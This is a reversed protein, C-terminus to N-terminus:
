YARPHMPGILFTRGIILLDFVLSWSQIYELDHAIRGQMEQIDRTEGRFGSIQALGTLGPKALFRSQYEPILAGYYEDHALAHPRPGVLSMDGRLVNFLQPLEDISTRRLVAGLRTIRADKRTAQVINPGDELARMTRFKYIVFPLGDRGTRRQRFIAPGSTELPILIAVLLLLPALIVIGAVAGCVDVLRKLKSRRMREAGSCLDGARQRSSPTSGGGATREKPLAFADLTM